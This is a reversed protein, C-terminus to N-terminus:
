LPVNKFFTSVVINRRTRCKCYSKRCKIYRKGSASETRRDGKRAGRGLIWLESSSFRSFESLTGDYTLPLSLRKQDQFVPIESEFDGCPPYNGKSLFCVASPSLLKAGSWM